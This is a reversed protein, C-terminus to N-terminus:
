PDGGYLGEKCDWASAFGDGVECERGGRWEHGKVGDNEQRRDVHSGM